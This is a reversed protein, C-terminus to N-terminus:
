YFPNLATVPWLAGIETLRAPEPDDAAVPNVVTLTSYEIHEATSYTYPPLSCAIEASRYASPLCWFKCYKHYGKMVLRRRKPEVNAGDDRRDQRRWRSALSWWISASVAQVKMLVVMFVSIGLQM